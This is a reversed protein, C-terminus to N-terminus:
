LYNQTYYQLYLYTLYPYLSHTRSKSHAIRYVCYIVNFQYSGYQAYNEKSEMVLNRDFSIGKSGIDYIVWNHCIKTLTDWYM